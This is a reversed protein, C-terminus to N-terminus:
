FDLNNESKQFPSLSPVKSMAYGTFHRPGSGYDCSHSALLAGLNVIQSHGNKAAARKLLDHFAQPVSILIHM